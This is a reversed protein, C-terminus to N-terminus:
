LRTRENSERREACQAEVSNEERELDERIGRTTVVSDSLRIHVRDIDELSADILSTAGGAFLKADAALAATKKSKEDVADLYLPLRSNNAGGSLTFLSRYSLKLQPGRAQIREAEVIVLGATESVRRLAARREARAAAAQAERASGASRFAAWAAFAGGVASVAAAALSLLETASAM